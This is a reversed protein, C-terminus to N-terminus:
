ADGALREAVRRAIPLITEDPLANCRQEKLLMWDVPYGEGSDARRRSLKARYETLSKSFYHNVRLVEIRPEETLAYLPASAIPKGTEDVTLAGDRYGFSHPTLVTNARGADVITKIHCSQPYYDMVEAPDGGPRVMGREAMRFQLGARRTYALTVPADPKTGHGSSGFMVWNAGVGPFREYRTLVAPLHPDVPSFLFEDLDVFMLWRTQRWRYSLCHGYARLQGPNQAWPHLTVKGRDLWPKLVLDPRDTSSNDYLYFHDVGITDYFTLWEALYPAEDKFIACVSLYHAM